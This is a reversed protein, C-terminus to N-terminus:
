LTEAKFVRTSARGTPHGRGGVLYFAGGQFFVAGHSVPRLGPAEGEVIPLAGLDRWGRTVPNFEYIRETPTGDDRLGGFFFYRGGVSTAAAFSFAEPAGITRGTPDTLLRWADKATDYVEIPRHGGGFLWVEAGQVFANAGARANLADARAEFAGQPLGDAALSVRETSYLPTAGARGGFAYLRGDVVVATAGSRAASLAVTTTEVVKRLPAVVDVAKVDVAGARGGVAYALTGSPHVALAFAGRAAGNGAMTLTTWAGAGAPNFAFVQTRAVLPGDVGDVSGWLSLFSPPEAGDSFMAHHSTALPMAAAETWRTIKLQKFFSVEVKGVAGADDVAEFALKHDGSRVPTSAKEDAVSNEVNPDWNAVKFTPGPGDLEKLLRGDYILKVKKIARGEPATAVFSIPVSPQTFDTAATPEILTLRPTPTPTPSPSPSAGPASPFPVPSADASPTATPLVAPTVASPQTVKLRTCAASAAALALVLVALRALSGTLPLRRPLAVAPKARPRVGAVRDPTAGTKLDPVDM